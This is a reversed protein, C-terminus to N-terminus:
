GIRDRLADAMQALAATWDAHRAQRFLRATPYWPSDGRAHLWRWDNGSAVLLWLPRGLAGALHAVATDVAIVLDLRALAAATAAFDALQPALDHVRLEPPLAAIEARAEGVQLGVFTAGPVALVPALQALALSRAADNEHRPNGRWVLGVRMRGPPLTVSPAAPPVSLYPVARPITDLTTGLAYPLSMLPLYVDAAPLPAGLTVVASVGPATALLAETGPHCEVIVRAGRAALAGAFRVFQIADGIGQEVTLLMTRGTLPEGRWRPIPMPRESRGARRFRWEYEAFGRALDGRVLLLNALNWHAEANDPDLALARGLWTEAADFHGWIRYIMAVNIFPRPDGPNTLGARHFWREAEPLRNQRFLTVARQLEASFRGLGRAQAAAQRFLVEARDHRGQQRLLLGLDHLAPAHGPDVRLAGELALAAEDPRGMQRLGTGIGHYLDPDAPNLRLARQFLDVAAAANDQHLMIAGMQRLALVHDPQHALIGGYIALAKATAGAALAAEADELLGEVIEGVADVM